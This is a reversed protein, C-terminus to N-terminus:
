PLIVANKEIIAMYALFDKQSHVELAIIEIETQTAAHYYLM